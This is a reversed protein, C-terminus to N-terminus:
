LAGLIKIYFIIVILGAFFVKITSGLIYGIFMAFGSTFSEKMQKGFYLEGLIVGALQGIILGPIGLAILGLIGGLFGGILGYKSAGYKRATILGGVYDVASAIATLVAFLVINGITIVEFSTSWAYIFAGAFVLPVGPLVPLFVGALGTLMIASSLILFLLSM